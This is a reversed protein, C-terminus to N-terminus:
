SPSCRCIDSAVGNLQQVEFWICSSPNKLLGFTIAAEKLQVPLMHRSIRMNTEVFEQALAASSVCSLQLVLLNKMM